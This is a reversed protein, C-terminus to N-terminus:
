KLREQVFRLHELIKNKEEIEEQINSRLENIEQRHMNNETILKDMKNEREQIM